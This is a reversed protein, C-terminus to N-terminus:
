RSQAPRFQDYDGVRGDVTIEANQNEDLEYTLVLNVTDRVYDISRVRYELVKLKLLDCLKQHMVVHDNIDDDIHDLTIQMRGINDVEIISASHEISWSSIFYTSVIVMINCVLIFPLNQIGAGNIVALVVGGFLYAMEAKSFQASRMQVMSLLAFLGFGMAINFSTRVMAMVVLIMFLNFLTVSVFLEKNRYKKYLVTYSFFYMSILDILLDRFVNAFDVYGM